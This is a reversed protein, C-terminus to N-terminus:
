EKKSLAEDINNIAEQMDNVISNLARGIVGMVQYANAYEPHDTVTLILSQVGRLDECAFKLLQNNDHIDTMTMATQRRQRLLLVESPLISYGLLGFIRFRGNKHNECLVM